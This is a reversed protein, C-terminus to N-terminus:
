VGTPEAVMETRAGAILLALTRSFGMWRRISLGM